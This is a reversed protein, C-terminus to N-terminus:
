KEDDGYDDLIDIIVTPEPMPEQYFSASYQFPPTPPLTSIGGIHFPMDPEEFPLIKITSGAPFPLTRQDDSSSIHWTVPPGGAPRYAIAYQGGGVITAKMTLTPDPATSATPATALIGLGSMGQIMLDQLAYTAGLLETETARKEQEEM